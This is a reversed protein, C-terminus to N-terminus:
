VHARRALGPDDHQKLFATIEGAAAPDGLRSQLRAAQLYPYLPYDRLARSDETTGPPKRGAEAYAAVFERRADAYPDAVAKAAGAFSLALLPVAAAAIWRPPANMRLNYRCPV